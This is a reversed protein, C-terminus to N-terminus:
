VAQVVLGFGPKSPDGSGGISHSRALSRPDPSASSSPTVDSSSSFSGSNTLTLSSSSYNTYPSGIEQELVAL